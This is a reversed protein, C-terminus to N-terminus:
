VQVITLFIVDFNRKFISTITNYFNYYCMARLIELEIVNM